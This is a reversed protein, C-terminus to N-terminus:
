SIFLWLMLYLDVLHLSAILISILSISISYLLLSEPPAEATPAEEHSYEEINPERARFRMRLYTKYKGKQNLYAVQKYKNKPKCSM